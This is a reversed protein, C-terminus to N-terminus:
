LEELDYFNPLMKAESLYNNNCPILEKNEFEEICIKWFEQEQICSHRAIIWTAPSVCFNENNCQDLQEISVIKTNTKRLCMETDKKHFERFCQYSKFTTTTQFNINQQELINNKTQM